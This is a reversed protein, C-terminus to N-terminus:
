LLCLLVGGAVFLVEQYDMLILIAVIVCWYGGSCYTSFLADCFRQLALSQWLGNHNNKTGKTLYM